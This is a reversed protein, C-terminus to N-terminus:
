GFNIADATVGSMAFANNGNECFPCAWIEPMQSADIFNLCTAHSWCKCTDSSWRTLQYLLFTCCAPPSYWQIMLANAVNIACICNVPENFDEASTTFPAPPGLGESMTTAVSDFGCSDTNPRSRQRREEVMNRLADQANTSSRSSELNQSVTSSSRNSREPLSPGDDSDSEGEILPKQPSSASADPVNKVVTKARGSEDVELVVSRRTPTSSNSSAQFSGSLRKRKVPSAHRPIHTGALGRTIEGLDGSVSAAFSKRAKSDTLSRQLSPRSIGGSGASQFSARSRSVSERRLRQQEKERKLEDVHFQYPQSPEANPNRPAPGSIQIGHTPQSGDSWVMSPNVFSSGSVSHRNSKSSFSSTGSAKLKNTSTTLPRIPSSFPMNSRFKQPMPSLDFPNLGLGSDGTGQQFPDFDFAGQNNTDWFLNTQPHTPATAPGPSSFSLSDPPSFQISPQFPTSDLPIQDVNTKLWAEGPASQRRSKITSPTAFRIPPQQPKRKAADRTPPPTQIQFGSTDSSAM